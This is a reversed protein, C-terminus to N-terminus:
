DTGCYRFSCGPTGNFYYVYYSGCNRVQINTTQWCCGPTHSFCVQRTVKGDAVTPYGGNLWGTAQTDCRHTPPCSTPMRTGASGQFRYWGKLDNDCLFSKSIFTTKRDGSSLSSYSTCEVAEIITLIATQSTIGLANRGICTYEGADDITVHRVDLRGDLSRLPTGSKGLWRVSPKPNGGV